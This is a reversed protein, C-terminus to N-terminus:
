EKVMTIESSCKNCIATSFFNITSDIDEYNIKEVLEPLFQHLQNLDKDTLLPLSTDFMSPAEIAYSPPLDNMGPFLTNLFHGEFVTSFERRRLVENNYITLM